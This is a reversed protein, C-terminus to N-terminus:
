TGAKLARIVAAVTKTDAGRSVRVAVGGIELEIMGRIQDVKHTRPRGRRRPPHEPPPAEIVAPVFLPVDGTPKPALPQRAQRRWTFLQQPTLGHRRAVSCVTDGEAYSEAVIGAKEDATWSRRRGTGTFVEIRQVAAARKSMHMPESISM